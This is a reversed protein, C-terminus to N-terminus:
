RSKGLPLNTRQEEKPLRNNPRVITLGNGHRENHQLGREYSRMGRNSCRDYLGKMGDLRSLMGMNLPFTGRANPEHLSGIQARIRSGAITSCLFVNDVLWDLMLMSFLLFLRVRIVEGFGLYLRQRSFWVIATLNLIFWTPFRLSFSFFISLSIGIPNRPTVIEIPTKESGTRYSSLLITWLCEHITAQKPTKRGTTGGLIRESSVICRWVILKGMARFLVTSVNARAM